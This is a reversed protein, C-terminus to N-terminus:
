SSMAVKHNIATEAVDAAYAATRGVSELASAVHLMREGGLTLTDRTLADQAERFASAESIIRNAADIDQKHFAVLSDAFLQCAKRAHKEIKNELKAHIEDDRIAVANRAIRLAHDATREILRAAMLYNLAQSANVGMKQAYSPDRIVAHYQKNIMWYLRDVEDDREGFSEEIDPVDETFARLADEQMARTLAQMRRLGKDMHFERPDLFDQLIVANAEEEVVEIGVIRRAAMRVARKAAATLPRKSRVVIVDFGSLYAAVIRRFAANADEGSLEIEYRSPSGEVRAHPYIALSGDSRAVFGVVDGPSLDARTVWEKPLTVTFSSGGTLQIKRLEM